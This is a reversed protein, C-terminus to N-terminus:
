LFLFYLTTVFDWKNGRWIIKSEYDTMTLLFLFIVATQFAERCRGDNRQLTRWKILFFLQLLVGNKGRWKIKSEYDTM